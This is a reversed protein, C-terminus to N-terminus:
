KAAPVPQAAEDATLIWIRDVYGMGDVTYNVVLDAGRVAAPMEIRNDQNFIRASPSLQRPKGDLTIDPFYGPTFKGRLINAPFPRDIALAPLAMMLTLLLAFLRRM